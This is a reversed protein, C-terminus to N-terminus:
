ISCRYTKTFCYYSKGENITPFQLDPVCIDTEWCKQGHRRQGLEGGADRVGGHPTNSSATDSTVNDSSNTDATLLPTLMSMMKGRGRDKTVLRWRMTQSSKSRSHSRNRSMLTLTLPTPKLPLPTMPSLTLPLLM